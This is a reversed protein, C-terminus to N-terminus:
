LFVLQTNNELVELFSDATSLIAVLEPNISVLLMTLYKPKKKKKM